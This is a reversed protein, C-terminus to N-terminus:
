PAASGATARPCRLGSRGNEVGPAPPRYGLASDRPSGPEIFLTRAGIHGLWDRVARRHGRTRQGFPYPQALRARNDARGLPLARTRETRKGQWGAARRGVSVGILQFVPCNSIAGPSPAHPSYRHRSRGRAPPLRAQNSHWFTPMHTTSAAGGKGQLFACRMQRRAECHFAKPKAKRWLFGSHPLSSPNGSPSQFSPRCSRRDRLALLSLRLEVTTGQGTGSDM